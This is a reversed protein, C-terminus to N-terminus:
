IKGNGNDFSIIQEKESVYTSEPTDPQFLPSSMSKERYCFDKINFGEPEPDFISKDNAIKTLYPVLHQLCTHAYSKLIEITKNDEFLKFLDELEEIIPEGATPTEACLIGDFGKIPSHRGLKCMEYMTSLEKFFTKAEDVIFKNDPAIVIYAVDRAYSYPELALQDWFQIAYPSVSLWDKEHGVVVSPIPQPECQGAHTSAMRHFQRWTLPGQIISPTEWLRTMYKENFSKRLIPMIMNKMFSLIDKNNQPIGTKIYPWKHVNVFTNSSKTQIQNKRYRYQSELRSNDLAMTIVTQADSYEVFNIFANEMNFYNTKFNIGRIARMLSSGSNGVSACQEQIYEMILQTAGEFTKRQVVRVQEEFDDDESPTTTTTTAVTTVAASSRTESPDDALGTIENEDDYFLGSRHSLKRNMMASFGCTCYIPDNDVYPNSGLVARRNRESEDGATGSGSASSGAAMMSSGGFALSQDFGSNNRMPLYIGSESGRINGMQGQGTNCVCLPCSDFNHDKFLNMSTDYLLLNLILANTEPLRQVPPPINEMSGFLSSASSVPSSPGSGYPSLPPLASPSYQSIISDESTSHDSDSDDSENPSEPEDADCDGFTFFHSILNEDTQNDVYGSDTNYNADDGYEDNPQYHQIEINHIIDHTEINRKYKGYVGQGNGDKGSSGVGSGANGGAGSGDKGDHEDDYDGHVIHVTVIKSKFTECEDYNEVNDTSNEDCQENPERKVRTESTSTKLALTDTSKAQADSASTTSILTNSPMTNSSSTSASESENTNGNSNDDNEGNHHSDDSNGDNSNEDYYPPSSDDSNEDNGSNERKITDALGKASSRFADTKRSNRSGTLSFPPDSKCKASKEKKRRSKDDSSSKKESGGGSSSKSLSQSSVKQRNQDKEDNSNSDSDSENTKITQGDITRKTSKTDGSRNSSPPTSSSSTTSNGVNVNNESNSHPGGCSESKIKTSFLTSTSAKTSSKNKKANKNLKNNKNKNKIKSKSNAKSASEAAAAREWSPKYVFSQREGQLGIDSLPAYKSSGYVSGISPSVLVYSWDQQQLISFFLPFSFFILSFECVVRLGCMRYCSVHVFDESFCDLDEPDLIDINGYPSLESMNSPSMDGEGNSEEDESIIAQTAGSDANANTSSQPGQQQPESKYPSPGFDTRIKGFRTPTTAVTVQQAYLEQLAPPTKRVPKVPENAKFRKVPHNMWAELTSYDYLTCQNLDSTDDSTLSEYNHSRLTPRHNLIEFNFPIAPRLITPEHYQPRARKKGRRNQDSNNNRDSKDDSAAKADVKDSRGRNKESANSKTVTEGDVSDAAAAAAAVTASAAVSNEGISEIENEVKVISEIASEPSQRRKLELEIAAHFDHGNSDEETDNSMAENCDLERKISTLLPATVLADIGSPKEVPEADGVPVIESKVKASSAEAAMAENAANEGSWPKYELCPLSKADMSASKLDEASVVANVSAGSESKASKDGVSDPNELKIDKATSHGIGDESNSDSISDLQDNDLASFIDHNDDSDLDLDTSLLNAVADLSELNVSDDLNIGPSDGLHTGSELTDTADAGLGFNDSSKDDGTDRLIDMAADLLNRTAGSPESKANEGSGDGIAATKANKRLEAMAVSMSAASKEKNGMLLEDASHNGNGDSRHQPSINRSNPESKIRKNDASMKLTEVLSKVKEGIKESGEEGSKKEASTSPSELAAEGTTIKSGIGGNSDDENAHANSAISARSNNSNENGDAASRESADNAASKSTGEADAVSETSMESPKTDKGDVCDGEKTRKAETAEFNGSDANKDRGDNGAVSSVNEEDKKDNASEGSADTKETTTAATASVNAKNVDDTPTNSEDDSDDSDSSDDDNESSDDSDDGSDDDDSNDADRRRQEVGDANKASSKECEVGGLVGEDFASEMVDDNVTGFCDFNLTSHNTDIEFQDDGVVNLDGRAIQSDVLNDSGSLLSEFQKEVTVASASAGASASNVINVNEREREDMDADTNGHKSSDSDDHVDHGSSRRSGGSMAGDRRLGSEDIDHMPSKETATFTGASSYKEASVPRSPSDESTALFTQYKDPQGTGFLARGTSKQNASKTDASGAGGGGGADEGSSPSTNPSPTNQQQETSCMFPSHTELVENPTDSFNSLDFSHIPSM